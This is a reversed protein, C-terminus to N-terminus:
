TRRRELHRRAAMQVASSVNKSRSLKRLDAERLQVVLRQAISIPTKANEVLNRKVQYSKMWEPTSGIIRLVDENVGRNRSILAVESEQLLPSRAAAASVIKNQERVLMLREERTGLMARRIKESVTMEALRQYLPKMRDELRESGDEEEIYVDELTPDSLKDALVAQDWFIEDEPLPVESPEAVLEGQIAQAIEKWAAIGKLEVHNRVALEVLRNATSMRAHKNMYVLEILRPHRLMREENTAVLETTMENGREAVHEVAEIPLGPMAFIKELVDIRDTYGEALSAIVAPPLETDLAGKLVPEPLAALTAKAQAAVERDDGLGLLVLVALLAAPRLGPVIGKAAMLRLPKPAEGSTIKQATPPLSKPDLPPIM